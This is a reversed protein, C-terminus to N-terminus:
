ATREVNESFAGAKDISAQQLFQKELMARSYARQKLQWDDPFQMVVEGSNVDLTRVIMDKTRDDIVFQKRRESVALGLAARESTFAAAFRSTQTKVAAEVTQSKPLETVVPERQPAAQSQGAQTSPGPQRIPSGVDM